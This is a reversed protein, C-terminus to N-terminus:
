LCLWLCSLKIRWKNREIQKRKIILYFPSWYLSVSSAGITVRLTFMFLCYEYSHIFSGKGWLQSKWFGSSDMWISDSYIFLCSTYISQYRKYLYSQCISENSQNLSLNSHAKAPFMQLHAQNKLNRATHMELKEQESNNEHIM